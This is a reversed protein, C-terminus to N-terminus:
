KGRKGNYDHTYCGPSNAQFSAASMQKVIDHDGCKPCSTPEDMVNRVLTEFSHACLECLYEYM